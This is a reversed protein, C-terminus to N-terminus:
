FIKGLVERAEQSIVEDEDKRKQGKVEHQWWTRKLDEKGMAGDDEKGQGKRRRKERMGELVKGEEVGEIFMKAERDARRREEDRRAEEERREGAVGEMLEAWGMGKLYRMNWVDDRYYGGKKGGVPQANLAEVCKKATKHSGFEIWGESYMQRKSSKAHSKTTSTPALFLRTIPSFGRQTLINRLASPRLYPPLSSLYIVGPRSSKKDKSRHKPPKAATHSPSPPNSQSPAKSLIVPDAQGPEHEQEELDPAALQTSQANVSGESVEDDESASPSSLRRRKTARGNSEARTTKSIEVAESDYGRDSGSDDSSGHDLYDNRTTSMACASRRGVQAFGPDQLQLLSPLFAETRYSYQRAKGTLYEFGM